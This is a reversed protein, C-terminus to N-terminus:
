SIILILMLSSSFAQIISLLIFSIMMKILYMVWWCSILILVWLSMIWINFSTLLIFMLNFVIWIVNLVILVCRCFFILFLFTIIYWKFVADLRCLVKIKFSQNEFNILSDSEDKNSSELCFTFLQNDQIHFLSFIFLFWKEILSNFIAYTFLQTSSVIILCMANWILSAIVFENKFASSINNIMFLIYSSRLWRWM